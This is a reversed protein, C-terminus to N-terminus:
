SGGGTPPGRWGTTRRATRTSPRTTGVQFGDAQLAQIGNSYAAAGLFDLATDTSAGTSAPKHSGTTATDAKIVVYEPQFGVGTINRDDSGNGSYSGVQMKGAAAKWAVYHFAAGNENAEVDSGVQFGDAQLAQIKNAAGANAKFRFAVDGAMASSRQNPEQAGASMLVVYDPQFGVGTISRDDAGNGAYTGVKLEGDVAKFAIWHYTNGNTNVTADTGLTFGTADLSKIRNTLLSSKSTLDKTADGGMTSSRCVAVDTTTDKIVVVNPQFPLGTIARNNTGNGTYIGSLARAPAPTAAALWAAGLMCGAVAAHRRARSRAPVHPVRERDTPVSM